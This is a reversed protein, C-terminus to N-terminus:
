LAFGIGSISTTVVGAIFTVTYTLYIMWHLDILRENPYAHKLRKIVAKIRTVAYLAVISNLLILAGMSISHTFEKYTIALAVMSAHLSVVFINLVWM